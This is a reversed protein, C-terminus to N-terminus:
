VSRPRALPQGRGRDVLPHAPQLLAADDAAVPRDDVVLRDAQRQGREDRDGREVGGRGVVDRVAQAVDTSM